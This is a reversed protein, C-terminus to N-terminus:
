NKEVLKKYDEYAKDIGQLFTEALELGLMDSSTEFRVPIINMEDLMGPYGVGFSFNPKLTKYVKHM